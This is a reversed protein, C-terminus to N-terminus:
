RIMQVFNTLFGELGKCTTVQPKDSEINRSFIPWLTKKLRFNAKKKEFYQTKLLREPGVFISM